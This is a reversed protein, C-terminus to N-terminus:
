SLLTRTSLTGALLSNFSGMCPGHLTSPCLPIPFSPPQAPRSQPWVQQRDRQGAHCLPGGRNEAGGHCGAHVFPPSGPWAHGTLLCLTDSPLPLAQRYPRLCCAVRMFATLMHSQFRHACRTRSVPERESMHRLTSVAALRLALSCACGSCPVPLCFSLAQACRMESM